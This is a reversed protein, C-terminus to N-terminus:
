DIRELLFYVPRFWDSCAVIDAGRRKMWPKDAGTAISLIEKRIDGWAWACFGEPAEFSQEIAFEQGVHFCNCPGYGEGADLYEDVLDQNVTIKLVTVKVRALEM